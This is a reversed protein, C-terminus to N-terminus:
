PKNKLAQARFNRLSQVMHVTDVSVWEGSTAELSPIHTSAHDGEKQRTESSVWVFPFFAFATRKNM